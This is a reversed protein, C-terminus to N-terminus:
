SRKTLTLLKRKVRYWFRKRYLQDKFFTPYKRQIARDNVKEFLYNKAHEVFSFHEAPAVHELHTIILQWSAIAGKIKEENQFQSVGDPQPIRYYVMGSPSHLVKAAKILVRTFFEGDQNVILDENWGGVQEVLSRRVLYAHSPFFSAKNNFAKLLELGSDFNRNIHTKKPLIGGTAGEFRNWKCTVILHEESPYKALEAIQQDLKDESFLDDSDLWNIYEGKSISYGYNRCGNAGKRYSDPRIHYQFRADADIFGQVIEATNDISGDDIVLCEWHTYRQHSISHLTEAIITARNFTPIIISVMTNM